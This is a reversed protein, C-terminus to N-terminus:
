SLELIWCVAFVYNVFPIFGLAIMLIVTAIQQLNPPKGDFPKVQYIRATEVFVITMSILYFIVGAAYISWIM